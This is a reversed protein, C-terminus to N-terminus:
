LSETNVTYPRVEYTEETLWVVKCESVAPVRIEAGEETLTFEAYRYGALQFAIDGFGGSRNTKVDFLTRIGRGIAFLDGTGAYMHKRNFVALESAIVEIEWERLFRQYSEIRGAVEKPVSVNEGRSLREAIGHVKTGLRGANDRDDYPTHALKKQRQSIPM